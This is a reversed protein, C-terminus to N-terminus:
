FFDADANDDANDDADQPQEHRQASFDIIWGTGGNNLSTFYKVLVKSVSSHYTAPIDEGCYSTSTLATGEAPVDSIQLYDTDCTGKVGLDFTTFKLNVVFGTPVSVEWTCESVNRYPGPYLPSTFRGKYNYLEGGCGKGKKTSTYTIDYKQYWNSAQSGWSRLSIKNGSSFIPNPVRVGCLQGLLGDSFDGDHIQLVNDTCGRRDFMSFQNFYLSITTGNETTITFLCERSNRHLIRGQVGTFNRNCTSRSYELKFGSHNTAKPNQSSQLTIVVGGGSSHYDPPVADGCYAFTEQQVHDRTWFRSARNHSGSFIFDEGLGESVFNQSNKDSISLRDENCNESNELDLQVFHITVSRQYSTDNSPMVTWRCKLGAGYMAPFEPSTLVQTTNGVTLTTNGCPSPLPDLVATVGNGNVTGDTVLRIWMANSSSIIPPPAVNGCYQGILESFSSAGDRIELYDGSCSNPQNRGTTSTANKLDFSTIRLRITNDSPARVLWHCDELTEYTAGRQTRFTQSNALRINGGCGAAVGTTFLIKASFGGYGEVDTTLLNIVMSSNESRVVPILTENLNGCLSALRNEKQITRGSYVNVFDYTCFRNYRINFSEFRLVVAKEAPATVIWTCNIREYYQSGGLLPSRIDAPATIEGGCDEIYYTVVFGPRNAYADTKFHLELRSKAKQLPPRNWGCWVPSETGPNTSIISVNDYSCKGMTPNELSFETFKLIIKKGPALFTYNCSLSGKYFNPWGPSSLIKKEHSVTIIGGCNVNWRARFGDGQIQNNSRFLVRMHNSTSNIPPPSNRGCLKTINMAQSSGATVNDRLDSIQIFDNQCNDSTELNFRNMFVVGIHYGPKANIFWECEANNPYQKPFGPSSFIGSYGEMIGGCGGQLTDLQLEFENNSDEAHYEIFLHNSQATINTSISGCYKQKQPSMPGGNRVIIYNRTCSGLNMKNVTLVIVEGNDPFRANWACDIPYTLNRPATLTHSPGGLLGGCQHWHYDLTFNVERDGLWLGSGKLATITHIPLPSRVTLGSTLNGCIYAVTDEGDEVTIRSLQYRCNWNNSPPWYSYGMNGSVRIALTQGTGDNWPSNVKWICNFSTLNFISDQNSILSGQDSTMAGGCSAPAVSSYRAKFGRVFNNGVFYRIMMTNGTSSVQKPTVPPRLVTIPSKFHFDNYFTMQTSRYLFRTAAVGLDVDLFDVQIRYGIPVTIRWACSRLHTTVNPYGPSSFEGETAELNGGCTAYSTTFKMSFGKYGSSSSNDSKFTVDVINSSSEIVPPKTHGCYQGIQQPTVDETGNFRLQESIGVHDIDDCNSGSPLELERFQLKMYHRTPGIIHWTCDVNNPYSAPYNPSHLVGQDSRITGGCHDGISVRAKFGNKPEPIDTYFHLYMVNGTTTISSPKDHCFRGLLMASDTGGDRIELYESDCETTWTFDFRDLFDIMIPEGVPAMITWFCESHPSPINPYNPSNLEWIKTAPSLLIKGGCDMGVERYTIKFRTSYKVGTIKVHLQNGTTQLPEPIANGCYKGNGLVPSSVSGGNKLMLYYDARCVSDVATEGVSMSIFKVEITRGPRVTVHWECSVSWYSNTPTTGNFEIVGNPGYMQGGCVKKVTAQFGTKHIYVDSHFHVKMLHTAEITTGTSNSLCFTGIQSWERQSTPSDGSFVTVQDMDCTESEELDLTSFKLSLHTGPISEFIWDCDINDDYEVPWGPSNFTYTNNNAGAMSIIENCGVTSISNEGNRSERPVQLWNLLFWSGEGFADTFFKIYVVNSSSQVAEPLIVGCKSLLKPANEDYGDYITIDIYCIDEFQEIHFDKFTIKISSLPDNVTIRWFYTGQQLCPKPYFPSAIEGSPGSLEGGPLMSYEAVFGKATRDASSKFKIWLSKSSSIANVDKDCYVGIIKGIGSEERVEVYDLNCHESRILDFEKFSLTLRNGPSSPIQWVCEVNRPYSNPYGPSAITGHESSHNGGCASNLVSYTGLFQVNYLDGYQSSAQVTLINGQSTIPLPVKTNCWKGRLPGDTGEGEFVQLSSITCEDQQSYPAVIQIKTLTLTVHDEPDQAIITWSCNVIESHLGIASDMPLIGQGNTVIRAGCAINYSAKFGKAAVTADTRMVVLMENSSSIYSPPLENRCHSGLVPADQSPGDYIRVYDQTCNETDEIDFDSFTLNVLHNVPVQILWECNQTAPYNNPYNTSHIVGTPATFRGGCQIDVSRYTAEFGSGQHSSDAHFKIFLKNGTSTFTVPHDTHCMEVLKPATADDGSYLALHDFICNPTKELNVNQMTIEISHWYDVQINWECDINRPYPNPYGPSTITGEPRNLVGGCGNVVWELRFGNGALYADSYFQLFVQNQNSVVKPPLETSDCYKGLVRNPTNYEGEKIELYDNNCSDESGAELDFHSFTLNLKNGIPAEIIWSCNGRNPYNNPFNPSEIVGHFGRLKEHCSAHYNILFGQGFGSADSRFRIGAFNSTTQISLPHNSDCYRGLKKSRSDPGDYIEVFDYACRYHVELDLSAIVFQIVSGASVKINWNCEASRGYPQPYNPSSISGSTTTLTGGCGITTSDWEIDFGNGGRSFDSHFKVYIQNGFSVIRPPIDTGCYKGFLPSTDSGGNRIELYDYVCNAHREIHFKKINLAVQHNNPAQIIWECIKDNPYREPYNPSKIVGTLWTYHGGCVKSADIFVYSAVFGGTAWFGRNESTITMIQSQTTLLPPRTPGCYTGLDRESTSTLNESIKISNWYCEHTSDLDFTIWNLQIIQGPPAQIIWTCKKLSYRGEEPPLQIMGPQSKLIGGCERDIIEYTAMFGRRHNTSDTKFKLWLYNHTSIIPFQPVSSNTGCYTGIQTSNESDGDHVELYDYNCRSRWGSEIDMDQFTLKIAKGPPQIIEYICTRSAPYPNPYYPSKIVGTEETFQGGCWVKYNLSFGQHGYTWDTKFRILLVNSNSLTSPPFMDGCYRGILPAERNVGDYVEVFDYLCNRQAELQFSTWTIEVREEIPMRIKWECDLNPKYNEGYGPSTIRGTADTYVGGCGPSGEISSFTLQFGADQGSSDSHFHLWTESGSTVLPPPNTHNCFIGLQQSGESPGDKIELYDNQCTPHEELMMAYFHFQIRKGSTVRVHWYCDRNSPYNGPSGPSSIRGHDANIEGGCMPDVTTWQLTFGDRSVSHDSYFWLYLSHQTSIINGGEPLNNGCYKGIMHDGATRGDHIQLFDFRCETSQEVNFATFTVNLVKSSNTKLIWACSLDHQYTPGNSPFQLIGTPNTLTGGCSQRATECRPGSFDATCRCVATNTDSITCTGLNRCPNSQCPNVPISCNQGTYGPNCRCTYDSAGSPICTGHTCPNSSCASLGSIDIAICGNPGMGNGQYGPPCRCQVYGDGMGATNICTALSHCGGNNVTCPGVYSCTVGNGQYGAPCPGCMRSGMTNICQVSPATSCGGNNTDCEDIDNCYYGNGTYGQPCAGCYFTGPLNICQVMPNVSCSPHKAACEDVDKICAPNTGDPEWGQDCICTFGAVSGPKSVCVGHGCIEHSNENNCDMTRKTCHIGHWGNTCDCQYTGPLNLCTAGHQCGLDTGAYRNCENIDVTCQPGEWGEACLCKYGDYIDECTGGNQCPNSVCEDTELKTRLSAIELEAQSMRVTLEQIRSRAIADTTPNTGGGSNGSPHQPTASPNLGTGLEIANVRSQLGSPGEISETLRRLTSEMDALLGLKWREVLQSAAYASTAIELLNIGNINVKSSGLPKFTINRDKASTIFLNGDHVELVPRDNM